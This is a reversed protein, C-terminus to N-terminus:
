IKEMLYCIQFNYIIKLLLFYVMVVESYTKNNAPYWYNILKRAEPNLNKLTQTDKSFEFTNALNINDEKNIYFNTDKM